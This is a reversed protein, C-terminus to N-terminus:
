FKVPKKEAPDKRHWVAFTHYAGVPLGNSANASAALSVRHGGLKCAEPELARLVEPDNPMSGKRAILSVYGVLEMGEPPPANPDAEVLALVCVVHRLAM